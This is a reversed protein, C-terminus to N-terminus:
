RDLPPTQGRTAHGNAHRGFCYCGCLMGSPPCCCQKIALRTMRTGFLERQFMLSTIQYEASFARNLLHHVMAISILTRNIGTPAWGHRARVDRQANGGRLPTKAMTIEMTTLQSEHTGYNLLISIVVWLEEIPMVINWVGGSIKGWSWM